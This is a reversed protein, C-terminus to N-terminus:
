TIKSWYMFEKRSINPGYALIKFVNRTLNGICARAPDFLQLVSWRSWETIQRGRLFIIVGGKRVVM